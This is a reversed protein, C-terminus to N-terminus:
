PRSEFRSDPPSYSCSTRSTASEVNAATCSVRAGAVCRSSRRTDFEDGAAPRCAIASSVPAEVM